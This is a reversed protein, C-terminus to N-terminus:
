TRITEDDPPIRLIVGADSREVGLSIRQALYGVGAVLREAEAPTMSIEIVSGDAQLAVTGSVLGLTLAGCLVVLSEALRASQELGAAANESFSGVADASASGAVVRSRVVELNVAAASQANRLEHGARRLLRRVPEAASGSADTV